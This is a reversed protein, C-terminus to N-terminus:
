ATRDQQYRCAYPQDPGPYFHHYRHRAASSCIYPLGSGASYTLKLVEMGMEDLLANAEMINMKQQVAYSIIADRRSRLLFHFKHGSPVGVFDM